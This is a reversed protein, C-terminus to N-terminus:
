GSKGGMLEIYITDSSQRKSSLHQQQQQQQQIKQNSTTSLSQQPDVNENENGDSSGGGVFDSVKQHDCLFTAKGDDLQKNLCSVTEDFTAKNKAQAQLLWWHHVVQEMNWDKTPQVFCLLLLPSTLDITCYLVTGITREWL